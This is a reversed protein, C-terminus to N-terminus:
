VSPGQGHGRSCVGYWQTAPRFTMPQLVAEDGKSLLEWGPEVEKIEPRGTTLIFRFGSGNPQM